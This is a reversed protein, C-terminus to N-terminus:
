NPNLTPNTEPKTIKPKKIDPKSQTITPDPLSLRTLTTSTKTRTSLKNNPGRTVPKTPQTQKPSKNNVPQSSFAFTENPLSQFNHIETGPNTITLTQQHQSALSDYIHPVTSNISNISDPKLFSPFLYNNTTNLAHPHSPKIHDPISPGFQNTIIPFLQKTQSPHNSSSQGPWTLKNTRNPASNDIITNCNELDVEASTPDRGNTAAPSRPQEVREGNGQEREERLWRSVLRGGPRRPDARIDNSWARVGDDQEMAFRVECKNEAHGMIGCVFCFIGLKEYKFQVECWGGEKNKVKTNKKLPQRVDVTVRLRMYQRWFSSNNNKNYEVFAGIYNALQIGNKEKMLGM